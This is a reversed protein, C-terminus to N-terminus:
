RQFPLFVYNRPCYSYVFIHNSIRLSQSLFAADFSPFGDCISGDADRDLIKEVVFIEAHALRHRRAHLLHVQQFFYIVLDIRVRKFQLNKVACVDCRPSWYKLLRFLNRSRWSINQSRDLSCLFM